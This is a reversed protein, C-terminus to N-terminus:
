GGRQQSYAAIQACLDQTTIPTLPQQGQVHLLYKHRITRSVIENIDAGTFGQSRGTLASYDIDGLFPEFSSQRARKRLTVEYISRIAKDDPYGMEIIESLRGPRLIASDITELKNTAGIVLVGDVKRAGDMNVNLAVVLKDDEKSHGQYRNQAIIDIEDIFLISAPFGDRVKQAAKDFKAQLNLSTQNVYSSGIDAASFIEFPVGAQYCMTKALTTKGTGPPGSLLIGKPLLVDPPAYGDDLHQIMVAFEQFKRKVENYGGIDEWLLATSEAPRVGLDKHVRGNLVLPNKELYVRFKAFRDSDAAMAAEAKMWDFFERTLQEVGKETRMDLAESYVSLLHNFPQPYTNAFNIKNGYFFNAAFVTSGTECLEELGSGAAIHTAYVQSFESGLGNSFVHSLSSWVSEQTALYEELSGLVHRRTEASAKDGLKSPIQFRAENLRSRCTARKRSLAEATITIETMRLLQSLEM